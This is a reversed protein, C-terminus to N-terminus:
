DEREYDTCEKHQRYSWMIVGMLTIATAVLMVQVILGVIEVYHGGRNCHGILM